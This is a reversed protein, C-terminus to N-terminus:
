INESIANTKANLEILTAMVHRYMRFESDISDISRTVADHLGIRPEQM